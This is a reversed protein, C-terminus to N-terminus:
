VYNTIGLKEILLYEKLEDFSEFEIYNKQPRHTMEHGNVLIIRKARKLRSVLTDLSKIENMYRNTHNYFLHDALYLEVCGDAGNGYCFFRYKDLGWKKKYRAFAEDRNISRLTSM